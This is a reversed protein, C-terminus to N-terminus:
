CRGGCGLATRGGPRRQERGPPGAAGDVDEMWLATRQGDLEHIAFIQPLLGGDPLATSLNSAYVMAETRWPYQRVLDERMHPPVQGIGPWLLPSQIVKVVTSFPVATTHESSFIEGAPRATGQVRWLGGTTMNLQALPLAAAQASEVVAGPSGLAAAAIEALATAAPAANGLAQGPVITHGRVALTLPEPSLRRMRARPRM